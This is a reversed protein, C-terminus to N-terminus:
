KKFMKINQMSEVFKRRILEDTDIVCMYIYM